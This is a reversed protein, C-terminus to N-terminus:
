YYTTTSGRPVQFCNVPYTRGNESFATTLANVACCDPPHDATGLLSGNSSLCRGSAQLGPADKPRLWSSPNRYVPLLQLPIKM